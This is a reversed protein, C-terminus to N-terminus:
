STPAASTAKSRMSLKREDWKKLVLIQGGHREIISRITKLSADLDAAASQGVLFMGEYQGTRDQKVTEAM